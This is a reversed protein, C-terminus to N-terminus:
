IYFKGNEKMGMSTGSITAIQTFEMDIKIPVDHYTKIENGLQGYKNDGM